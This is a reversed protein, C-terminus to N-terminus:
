CLCAHRVVSFALANFSKASCGLCAVVEGNEQLIRIMESTTTPTCRSFIPVLLPVDDVNELHPRINQIGYPLQSKEETLEAPEDESMENSLAICCNWDTELGLRSAFEACHSCLVDICFWIM